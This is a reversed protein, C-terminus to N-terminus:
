RRMKTMTTTRELPASGGINFRLCYKQTAVWGVVLAASVVAINLPNMIKCLEADANVRDLYKCEPRINEITSHHPPNVSHM